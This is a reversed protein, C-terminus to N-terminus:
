ACSNLGDVNPEVVAQTFAFLAERTGNVPLVHRSADLWGAPVDFRQECWNIIAERLAPIGLTAPYVSMKDISAILMQKVLDPAPHKPEGISLSIPTHNEDPQVEALLARLKEFPYPHLQKLAPNM